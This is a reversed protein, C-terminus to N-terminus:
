VHAVVRGVGGEATAAGAVQETRAFGTVACSGARVRRLCWGIFGDGEAFAHGHFHSPRAPRSSSASWAVLHSIRAFKWHPSLTGTVDKKLTTRTCLVPAANENRAPAPPQCRQNKVAMPMPADTNMTHISRLWGPCRRNPKASDHMRPPAM